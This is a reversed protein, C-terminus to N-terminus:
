FPRPVFLPSNLVDMVDEGFGLVVLGQKEAARVLSEHVYLSAIAGIVQKGEFEPFFDRVVALHELFADIHVPALRSKTENVLVHEGCVAVVDFEQVRDPEVTSRRRVRIAVSEVRNEPCGIVTRLIRGISPVVLDEAMTGLRNSLEGWQRRWEIRERRGEAERADRDRRMQEFQELLDRSTQASTRALEAM